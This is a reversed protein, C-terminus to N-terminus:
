YLSQINPSLYYKISELNYFQREEPLKPVNRNMKCHFTIQSDM